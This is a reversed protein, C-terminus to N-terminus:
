RPSSRDTVKRVSRPPVTLPASSMSRKQSPMTVQAVTSWGHYYEPQQSIVKTELVEFAPVAASFSLSPLVGLSIAVLTFLSLSLNPKMSM